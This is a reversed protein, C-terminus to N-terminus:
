IKFPLHIAWRGAESKAGLLNTDLYVSGRERVMALDLLSYGEYTDLLLVDCQRHRPQVRMVMDWHPHRSPVAAAHQTLLACDIGGLSSPPGHDAFWTFVREKEPASLSVHSVAILDLDSKNSVFDGTTASGHLYIAVLREGLLEQIGQAASAAFTQVIVPADHNHNHWQPARKHNTAKM